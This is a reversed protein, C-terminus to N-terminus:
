SKMGSKHNQQDDTFVSRESFQLLKLDFTASNLRLGNILDYTVSVIFFCFYILLDM